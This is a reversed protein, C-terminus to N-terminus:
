CRLYRSSNKYIRLRHISPVYLIFMNFIIAVEGARITATPPQRPPGLNHLTADAIIEAHFDHNFPM